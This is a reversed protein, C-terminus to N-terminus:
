QRQCRPVHVTTTGAVTLAEILDDLKNLGDEKEINRSYAKRCLYTCGDKEAKCFFEYIDGERDCIHVSKIGEPLPVGAAEMTELWKYSEKDEIPLKSRTADSKGFDEPPRIWLKQSMLGFIEGAEGIAVASHVVIGRTGKNRGINGLGDTEKLNGFDFESTDQPILLVPPMDAIIKGVTVKRTIETIAETTVEDNGVFRYAAKAQYPDGCASSVSETPKSSLQNLLRPLRKSLREDGFVANGYDDYDGM